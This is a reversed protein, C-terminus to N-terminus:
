SSRRDEIKSRGDEIDETFKGRAKYFALANPLTWVVLVICAFALAASLAFPFM